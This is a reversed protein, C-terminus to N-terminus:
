GEASTCDIYEVAGSSQGFCDITPVLNKSRCVYNKKKKQSTERVMM